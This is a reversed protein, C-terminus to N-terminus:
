IRYRLLPQKRPFWDYEYATIIKQNYFPGVIIKGEIRYPGNINDDWYNRIWNNFFADFFYANQTNNIFNNRIFFNSLPGYKMIVGYENNEFHNNIVINLNNDGTIDVGSEDNDMFVNGSIFNLWGYVWIGNDNGIFRNGSIINFDSKVYIGASFINFPPIPICKIITFGRITVFNSLGGILFVADNGSGNVITKYKNQGIVKMSKKVSIWGEKYYGNCVFVTDGENAANVGDKIKRYPHKKTGDWPGQTNDDDVFIINDFIKPSTSIKTNIIDAFAPQIGTGIFLVIVGVVLSKYLMASKGEM